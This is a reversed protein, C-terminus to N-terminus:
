KIKFIFGRPYFKLELFLFLLVCVLTDDKISTSIDLLMNALAVVAVPEQNSAAFENNTGIVNVM